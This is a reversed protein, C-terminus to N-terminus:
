FMENEISFLVSIRALLQFIQKHESVAPAVGTFVNLMGAIGNVPLKTISLRGDPPLKPEDILDIAKYEPEDAAVVAPIVKPLKIAQVEDPSLRM